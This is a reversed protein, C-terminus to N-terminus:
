YLCFSFSSLSILKGDKRVIDIEFNIVDKTSKLENVIENRQKPDAYFDAFNKGIVEEPKYGTLKYISPSVLVCKGEIDSRTFVDTMSEFDIRFKEESEKIKNDAHYANAANTIIQELQDPEFPKNLYWYIGAENIAEKIVEKEDFATFLICQIGPWKNKM